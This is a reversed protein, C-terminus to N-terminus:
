AAHFWALPRDRDRSWRAWELLREGADRRARIGARLRPSVLGLAPALAVGLRLTTRYGWSTTSMARLTAVVGSLRFLSAGSRPVGSFNNGCDVKWRCGLLHDM